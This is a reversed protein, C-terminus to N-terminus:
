LRIRGVDGFITRNGEEELEVPVLVGKLGLGGGLAVSPEDSELLSDLLGLSGTLSDNGVLGVSLLKCFKTLVSEKNLRTPRTAGFFLNDCESTGAAPDSVPVWPLGVASAAVAALSLEVGFFLMSAVGLNASVSAGTASAAAGARVPDEDLLEESSSFFFFFFAALLLLRETERPLRAEM